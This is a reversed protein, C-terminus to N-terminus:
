WDTKSSIVGLSLRPVVIPIAPRTIPDARAHPGITEPIIKFNKSQFLRKIKKMIMIVTIIRNAPVPRIRSTMGRWEVLKSQNDTKRDMPKIPIMYTTLKAAFFFTLQVTLPTIRTTLTNAIMQNQWRCSLM